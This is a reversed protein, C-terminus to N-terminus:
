HFYEAIKMALTPTSYKLLIHHNCVEEAHKESKSFFYPMLESDKLFVTHGKGSFKRLVYPSDLFCMERIMFHSSLYIIICYDSLELLSKKIKVGKPSPIDGLFVKVEVRKGNLSFDFGRQSTSKEQKLGFINKAFWEGLQVYFNKGNLIVLENTLIQFGSHIQEIADWVAIANSKRLISIRKSESRKLTRSFQKKFWGPFSELNHLEYSDLTYGESLLQSIKKLGEIKKFLFKWPAYLENEGMIFIEDKDYDSSGHNIENFLKVYKEVDQLFM